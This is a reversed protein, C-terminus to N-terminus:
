WSLWHEWTGSRNGYSAGSTGTGWRLANPFTGCTGGDFGAGIAGTSNSWNCSAQSTNYIGHQGPGGLMVKTGATQGFNNVGSSGTIGTTTNYSQESGFTVAGRFDASSRQVLIKTFQIGQGIFNITAASGYPSSFVRVFSSNDYYNPQYMMQIATPMSASKFWYSGSSIELSFAETPSSLPFASTLGPILKWEGDVSFQYAEDIGWIGSGSGLSVINTPGKIGGNSM